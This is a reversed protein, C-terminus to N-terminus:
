RLQKNWPKKNCDRSTSFIEFKKRCKYMYMCLPVTSCVCCCSSYIRLCNFLGIMIKFTSFRRGLSAMNDMLRLLHLLRYITERISEKQAFFDRLLHIYLNVCSLLIFLPYNQDWLAITQWISNTFKVANHKRSWYPLTMTANASSSAPDTVASFAM